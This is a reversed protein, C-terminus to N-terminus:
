RLEICARLMRKELFIFIVTVLSSNGMFTILLEDIEENYIKVIIPTNRDYITRSKKKQAQFCHAVTDSLLKMVYCKM